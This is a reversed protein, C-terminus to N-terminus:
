HSFQNLIKYKLENIGSGTMASTFCFDVNQKRFTNALEVKKEESILDKKNLVVFSKQSIKKFFEELREEQVSQEQEKNEREFYLELEKKLKLFDKEPEENNSDLIFLFFQTREIHKLFEFGLGYGKHAGELLGPIDALVVQEGTDKEIVGLNPTRTTFPYNAVKPKASSLKSLLLSKGANPFGVLGIDAIIKLELTIVDTVGKEGDQAKRPAQNISTAFFSNGRGGRGGKLFTWPEKEDGFDKIVTSNKKLLTGLPVKLYFTSGQAGQQNKPGGQNGDEGKYTRKNLHIFSNLSPDPLLVFDGGKGGHGGDPGGKPRYKERSFSVAGNGGSGSSVTLQIQDVFKM